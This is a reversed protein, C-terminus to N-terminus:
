DWGDFIVKLHKLNGLSPPSMKALKIHSIPSLIRLHEISPPLIEYFALRQVQQNDDIYHLLNHALAMSKLNRFDGFNMVKYNATWIGFDGSLQIHRLSLSAFERLALVIETIEDDLLITNEYDYVLFELNKVGKLLNRLHEAQIASRQLTLSTINWARPKIPWEHLGEETNFAYLSRVSSIEAFAALDALSLGPADDFSGIFRVKRLNKMAKLRPIIEGNSRVLSVDDRVSRAIKQFEMFPDELWFGDALTLTTLHSLTDMLSEISLCRDSEFKARWGTTDRALPSDRMPSEMDDLWNLPLKVENRLMGLAARSLSTKIPTQTMASIKDIMGESMDEEMRSHAFGFTVQTPYAAVRWDLYIAHLLALAPSFWNKKERILLTITRLSKRHRHLALTPEFLLMISKCSLAFSEIDDPHTQDIIACIIEDPLTNLRSKSPLTKAMQM